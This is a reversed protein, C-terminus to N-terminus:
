MLAFYINYIWDLNLDQCSLPFLQDYVMTIVNQYVDRKVYNEFSYLDLVNWQM